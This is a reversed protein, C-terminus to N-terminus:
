AAHKSIAMAALRRLERLAEDMARHEGPLPHAFSEEIRELIAIRATTIRERLKDSDTELMAAEYLQKWEM